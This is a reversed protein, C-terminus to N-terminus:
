GAWDVLASPTVSVHQAIAAGEQAALARVYADRAQMRKWYDAVSAPFKPALGLLDALMLAYGVSVDAATFRGACVYPENEVVAEIGRLRALFWRTYDEAVQPSRRPETEFRAYRLIM